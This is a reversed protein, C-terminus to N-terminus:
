NNADLYAIYSSEKGRDYDKLYKNNAKAYRHFVTSVGGRMQSEFFELIETDSILELKVKTRKLMANWALGPSTYFWLPDLNYYRLCCERFEEFVDALHLVDTKLYLMLYDKISKCNYRKWVEQALEYDALSVSALKLSSYFKDIAPLRDESLIDFSQLYEYPFIGKRKM